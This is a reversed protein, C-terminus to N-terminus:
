ASPCLGLAQLRILMAAPSVGFQRALDLHNDASADYQLRLDLSPLLLDVSFRNAQDQHGHSFPDPSATGAGPGFLRDRHVCGDPILDRHMLYHGLAHAAAFSRRQASDALSVQIRYTGRAYAFTASDGKPLDVVDYDISLAQLLGHFDIPPRRSFRRLVLMEDLHIM